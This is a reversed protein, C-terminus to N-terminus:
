LGHPGAPRGDRGHATVRRRHILRTLWAALILSLALGIALRNGLRAFPTAGARPEIEGVLDGRVFPPITGQLRGRPDIIASIGTNTARLLHRENELARMRAIELHQHPALSDGFWADNSVNILFEAEPLAQAVESPFADEYCISVGALADGVTLLPREARGRSFDSMPIEFLEVLPGLWTKFPMFEGFPVLHRKAYLDEHAGISLLGNFYRNTGPEMVPIGLVITTGAARARAALPTIFSSRVRHLFEPIATEPWVVLTKGLHPETLEWYVEMTDFLLDPDWKLTQPISAQVVVVSRPPGAPQTWTVRQLWLGGAWILLLVALAIWRTRGAWHFVAYLLGASGVLLLGVGYVGAIPAYGSLPGDIQTYGLNLWPFGTFLWGRLWELLIYLGPLLLLPVLWAPGQAFRRLLWGLLGHYLAMVAVFVGSLLHAVWAPMNGFENLSIRIWFVGFGMLGVGFLWGLWFGARPSADRLAILLGLLGVLVLPSWGFPAFGLVLVAGSATALLASLWPALSPPTTPM